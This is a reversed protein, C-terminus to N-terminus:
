SVRMEAERCSISAEDARTTSSIIMRIRRKDVEIHSRCVESPLLTDAPVSYMNRGEREGGAPVSM